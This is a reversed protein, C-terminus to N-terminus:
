SMSKWESLETINMLIDDTSIKLPDFWAIGPNRKFWTIQRKAYHRTDTKIREIATELTEEKLYVGYLQAYGISQMARCNQPSLGRDFFSFAEDKLGQEMMRDVRNEIRQYLIRRDTNLGIRVIHYTDDDQQANRFSRNLASFPQGTIRFVELARVVRKKDNPHLREATVPDAAKLAEFVAKPDEDYESEIETRLDPESPTSFRMDSFIADTYLGSGGVVIPTKHRAIVDDITNRALNRFTSVTFSNDTVDAVDILHHPIGQREEETPKASGIDMGRYVAVADASIIEGDIRQALAISLSTKGCATPGSICYVTPLANM